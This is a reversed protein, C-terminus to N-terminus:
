GGELSSISAYCISTRLSSYLLAPIRSRKEIMVLKRNGGPIQYGDSFKVCDLSCQGAAAVLDNHTEYHARFGLGLKTIARAKGTRGFLGEERLRRRLARIPLADVNAPAYHGRQSFVSMLGYANALDDAIRVLTDLQDQNRQAEELHGARISVQASESLAQELPQILARVASAINGFAHAQTERFLRQHVNNRSGLAKSNDEMRVCAAQQEHRVETEMKMVKKLNDLRRARFVVVSEPSPLREGPMLAPQRLAPRLSPPVSKAEGGLVETRLRDALGEVKGASRAIEDAMHALRSRCYDDTYLDM